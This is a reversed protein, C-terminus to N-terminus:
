VFCGIILLTYLCWIPCARMGDQLCQESDGAPNTFQCEIHLFAWPILEASELVGNQWTCNLLSQGCPFSTTKNRKIAVITCQRTSREQCRGLAVWSQHDKEQYGQDKETGIQVWVNWRWKSSNEVDMANGVRLFANIILFRFYTRCSTMDQFCDDLSFHM